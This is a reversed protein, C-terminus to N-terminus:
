ARAPTASDEEDPQLDPAVWHFGDGSPILGGEFLPKENRLKGARISAQKRVQRTEQWLTNMEDSRSMFKQGAADKDPSSEVATQISSGLAETSSKFEEVSGFLPEGSTSVGGVLQIFADLNSDDSNIVKRAEWFYSQEEQEMDYFSALFKYFVGFERRYRREFEEFYRAEDTPDNLYTNISRAALLGAYTALHVGSSFVPDVFCAADGILAVGPRWFADNLYSWDRRVRFQGYPGETVLQADALYEAIMPCAAILNSMVTAHDEQLLHAKERAIVAGVSTLKDTLPIYWFWGDEFAACLINGANPEPLRKGNEYYGFLAVNRFLESFERKINLKKHFQSTNGGAVAVYRARANVAKGDEDVYSVGVVRGDETILDTVTCGERVDVGKRKANNLLINDFKMREVQFAYSTPGSLTPSFAFAFTWPDPSKGWRFTGGRKLMFGAEKLEEGVGLMVCIGHITSPLLSEGIQYRPFHDREILLVRHGQMAVFSAVTSGAPGGGVVILDVDQGNGHAVFSGGQNSGDQESPKSTARM